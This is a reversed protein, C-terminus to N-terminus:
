RPGTRTSAAAALTVAVVDRNTAKDRKYRSRRGARPEGRVSVTPRPWISTPGPRPSSTTWTRPASRLSCSARRSGTASTRWGASSTATPAPMSGADRYPLANGPLTLKSTAPARHVHGRVGAAPSNAPRAAAAELEKQHRLRPLTAAVSRGGLVVVLAGLGLLM